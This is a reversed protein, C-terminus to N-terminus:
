ARRWSFVCQRVVAKALSEAAAVSFWFGLGTLAAMFVLLLLICCCALFYTIKHLLYEATGDYHDPFPRLSEFSSDWASVPMISNYLVILILIIEFLMGTVVISVGEVM